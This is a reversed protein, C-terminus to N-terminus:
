GDNCRKVKALSNRCRNLREILRYDSYVRFDFLEILYSVRIGRVKRNTYSIRIM